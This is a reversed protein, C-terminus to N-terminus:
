RALGAIAYTPAPVQVIRTMRDHSITPATGLSPKGDTRVSRATLDLTLTVRSITGQVLNAGFETVNGEWEGTQLPRDHRACKLVASCQNGVLPDDAIMPSVLMRERLQELLASTPHLIGIEQRLTLNRLASSNNRPALVGIYRQTPNFGLFQPFVGRRMM